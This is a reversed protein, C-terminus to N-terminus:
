LKLQISVLFIKFKILYDMLKASDVNECGGHFKM